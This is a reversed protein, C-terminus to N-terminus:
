LMYSAGQVQFERIRWGQTGSWHRYHRGDANVGRKFLSNPGPPLGVPSAGTPHGPSGGYRGARVTVMVLTFEAPSASDEDTHAIGSTVRLMELVSAVEHTPPKLAQEPRHGREADADDRPM